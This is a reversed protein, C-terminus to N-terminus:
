EDGKTILQHLINNIKTSTEKNLYKTNMSAELELLLLNTHIQDSYTTSFIYDLDDQSLHPAIQKLLPHLNIGAIFVGLSRFELHADHKQIIYQYLEETNNEILHICLKTLNNYLGKDIAISFIDLRNSESVLTITDQALDHKHTIREIDDISLHKLITKIGDFYGFQIFYHTTSDIYNVIDKTELLYRLLQNTHYKGILKSWEKVPLINFKKTRHFYKLFPVEQTVDKKFLSKIINKDPYTDLLLLIRKELSGFPISFSGYLTVYYELYHIFGNM